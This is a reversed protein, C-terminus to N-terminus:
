LWAEAGAQGRPRCRAAAADSGSVAVKAGSGPQAPVARGAEPGKRGPQVTRRSGAVGGGRRPSRRSTPRTVRGAAPLPSRGDRVPTM